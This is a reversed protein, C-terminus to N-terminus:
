KRLRRFTELLAASFGLIFIILVLFFPNAAYFIVLLGLGCVVTLIIVAWLTGAFTITPLSLESELLSHEPRNPDYRVTLKTGVPFEALLGEAANEEATTAKMVGSYFTTNVSYSYTLEAVCGEGDARIDQGEVTGWAIPWTLARAKRRHWYIQGAIAITAAGGVMAPFAWARVAISIPVIIIALVMFAALSWEQWRLDDEFIKLNDGFPAEGSTEKSTLM